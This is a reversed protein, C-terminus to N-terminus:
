VLSLFFSFFFTSSNEQRPTAKWKQKNPRLAQKVGACCAGHLGQQEEKKLMDRNIELFSISLQTEKEKWFITSTESSAVSLQLGSSRRRCCCCSGSGDYSERSEDAEWDTVDSQGRKNGVMERLWSIVTPYRLSKWHTVVFPMECYKTTALQNCSRVSKVFQKSIGYSFSALM